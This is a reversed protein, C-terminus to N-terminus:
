LGKVKACYAVWFAAAVAVFSALGAGIWPGSFQGYDLMVGYAVPGLASGIDMGSYVLGYASGMAGKPAVRRILMDRSPGALGFLFGAVCLGFIAFSSPVLGTALLLFVLGSSFLAVGVIKETQRTTGALFGGALLGAGASLMYLSLATSAVEKGIDYLAGMIPVTFNQVSSMAVTGCAFFVFAGWLAPNKLLFLLKQSFHMTQQAEAPNLQKVHRVPAILEAKIFTLLLLLLLLVGAAAAAIRWSGTVVIMFTMFVPTFAWGLNGSVGHVSFAHGLRKPGVHQNLLSFDVPHFVANGMGGIMAALLLVSYGPAVAILFASVAMFALGFRLVPRGGKKDVIFGSSAQGLMSVVFFVTTVLGLEVFSYGFEHNLSIYLSPLVLQFFHSGAHVLGILSIIQWDRSASKKEDQCTDPSLVNTNM